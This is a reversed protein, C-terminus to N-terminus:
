TPARRPSSSRPALGTSGPCRVCCGPPQMTDSPWVRPSRSTSRVSRRMSSTSTLSSAPRSSPTITASTATWAGRDAGPDEPAAQRDGAPGADRPDHEGAILAEVMARGSLSLVKSAVSTLKIGADQLVKELRAIESARVDIQSKRYRTLERLERIPLPPVFSPRVMGHAVVDALWEADSMDTKRGPVNKVHHANCLWLEFRDELAYYVPKWYVGTAEMAALTVVREALWAALVALGGTTTKFRAKEAHVGGRPRPTRVCVTVEDRHM